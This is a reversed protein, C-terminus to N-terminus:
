VTRWTLRIEIFFLLNFPENQSSCQSYIVSPLPLFLSILSTVVPYNLHSITPDPGPSYFAQTWIINWLQTLSIEKHILHLFFPSFPFTLSTSADPEFVQVQCFPRQCGIPISAIIGRVEQEKLSWQGKRVGWEPETYVSCGCTLNAGQPWLQYDPDAGDLVPVQPLM